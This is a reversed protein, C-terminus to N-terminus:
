EPLLVPGPAVANVTVEPALIRALGKTLMDIGAKSISHPLYSLWPELAALDSINVINGRAARLAPAPGQSVFFASRLNLDLVDDWQEPTVHGVPQRLRVAEYSLLGDLRRM